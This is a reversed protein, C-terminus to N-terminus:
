LLKLINELEQLFVQLEFYHLKELEQLFVQLEFYHTNMDFSSKKLETSKALTVLDAYIHFFMVADAKLAALKNCDQLKIAVDKEM